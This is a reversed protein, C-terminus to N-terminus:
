LDGSTEVILGKDFLRSLIRLIKPKLRLTTEEFSERQLWETLTLRGSFFEPDIRPGSFVLTLKPGNRSYFLLGFKERRIRVGRALKFRRDSLSDM